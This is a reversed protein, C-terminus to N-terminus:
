KHNGEYKKANAYWDVTKIRNEIHTQYEEALRKIIEDIGEREGNFYRPYDRTNFVRKDWMRKREKYVSLYIRGESSSVYVNYYYGEPLEPCGLGTMDTKTM